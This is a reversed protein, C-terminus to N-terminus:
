GQALIGVDDEDTLHAVQLGDLDGQGRGLCAVQHERGKVRLVARLRDVADDVDKRRVLLLLDPHLDCGGELADDRLLEQEFAPM